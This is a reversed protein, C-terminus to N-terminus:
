TISRMCIVKTGNLLLNPSWKLKIMHNLIFQLDFAKANHAFAIIKNFKNRPKCLYNILEEVPNEWFSFKRTGCLDCPVDINDISECNTCYQQVCVLNPVHLYANGAYTTDQTTEFDYFAYLVKESSPVKKIFCVYLM